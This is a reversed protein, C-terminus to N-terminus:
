TPVLRPIYTRGDYCKIFGNTELAKLARGFLEGNMKKSLLQQLHRRYFYPGKELAKRIDSEAKSFNDLGVDGFINL